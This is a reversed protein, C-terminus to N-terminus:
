GEAKVDQMQTELQNQKRREDTLGSMTRTLHESIDWSGGGSFIGM